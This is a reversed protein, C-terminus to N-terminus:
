KGVTISDAIKDYEERSVIRRQLLDHESSYPRGAIIRDASAKDMGPLSMLQSKSAYNLHLPKDPTPRRLGDRIGQVVAKANDKLEATAAATQQRVQEPSQPKTACANCATFCIPLTSALIALLIARLHMITLHSNPDVPKSASLLTLFPRLKLQAETSNEDRHIRFCRRQGIAPNGDPADPLVRNAV